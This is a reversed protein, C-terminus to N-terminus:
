QRRTRVMYGDTPKVKTNITTKNLVWTRWVYSVLRENEKNPM